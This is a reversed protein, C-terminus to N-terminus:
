FGSQYYAHYDLVKRVFRRTEAFPPVGGHVHVATEGANYAALARPLSNRFRGLLHRLYRVGGEINQAPDLPDRVGYRAATEPMLQMLGLAGKSSRAAPDFHSETHVLAKVLAPDVGHRAAAARILADFRTTRPDPRRHTHVAVLRGVGNVRRTVRVLTHIGDHYARDTILHSGDPLRYVYVPGAPVAGSWAALVGALVLSTAKM